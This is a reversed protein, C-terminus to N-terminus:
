CCSCTKGPPEIGAEPRREARSLHPAPPSSVCPPMPSPAPPCLASCHAIKRPPLAPRPCRCECVREMCGGTSRVAEKGRQEGQSAEPRLHQGGGRRRSLHCRSRLHRSRCRRRRRLQCSSSSPLLSSSLCPVRYQSAVPLRNSEVRPLAKLIIGSRRGWLVATMGPLLGLCVQVFGLFLARRKM